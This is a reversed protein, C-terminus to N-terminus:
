QQLILGLQWLLTIVSVSLSILSILIAFWNPLSSIRKKRLYIKYRRYNDSISYTGDFIDCGMDDKKGTFNQEIFHYEFYLTAYCKIKNEPKRKQFRFSFLSRKEKSLLHIKDFSM